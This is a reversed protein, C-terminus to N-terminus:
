GEGGDGHGADTPAAALEDALGALIQGHCVLPDDATVGGKPACWCALVKGQLSPLLQLLGRQELLWLRYKEIAQERSCGADIRFPNAWISGRLGMRPMARGIYLDYPEGSKINVVVTEGM